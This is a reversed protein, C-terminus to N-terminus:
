EERTKLQPSCAASFPNALFTGLYGSVLVSGDPNFHASHFEGEPFDNIRRWTQGSDRSTYVGTIATLVERNPRLPDVAIGYARINPGVQDKGRHLLFKATTVRQVQDRFAPDASVPNYIGWCAALHLGGVTTMSHIASDPGVGTIHTWKQTRLDLRYAQDGTGVYLSHPHPAAPNDFQM